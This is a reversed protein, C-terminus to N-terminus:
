VCKQLAQIAGLRQKSDEYIRKNGERSRGGDAYLPLRSERPWDDVVNIDSSAQKVKLQIHWNWTVKSESRQFTIHQVYM